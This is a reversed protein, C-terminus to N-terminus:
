TPPKSKDRRLVECTQSRLYIQNFHSILMRRLLQASETETTPQKIAITNLQTTRIHMYLVFIIKSIHDRALHDWTWLSIYNFVICKDTTRALTIITDLFQDPEPGSRDKHTIASPLALSVEVQCCHCGAICKAFM